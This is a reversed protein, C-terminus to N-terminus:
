SLHPKPHPLPQGPEASLSLGLSTNASASLQDLWDRNIEYREASTFKFYLPVGHHLWISSRGNGVDSSDVWSFFFGERRRLKSNVV